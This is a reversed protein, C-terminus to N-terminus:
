VTLQFPQLVRMYQNLLDIIEIGIQEPSELGAPNNSVGKRALTQAFIGRNHLGRDVAINKPWGFPRVWGRVFADLCAASSPVGHTDGERVIFAQQFTTGYDVVNFIDYYRGTADKLEVVDVGIENNFEYPKPTGVKNTKPKVKTLECPNCRHSKAAEIYEKPARGARLM